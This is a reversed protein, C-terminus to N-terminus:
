RGKRRGEGREEESFITSPQVAWAQKSEDGEGRRENWTASPYNPTEGTRERTWFPEMVNVFQKLRIWAYISLTRKGRCPGFPVTRATTSKVQPLALDPLYARSDWVKSTVDEATSRLPWFNVKIREGLNVTHLKKGSRLAWLKTLCRCCKTAPKPRM